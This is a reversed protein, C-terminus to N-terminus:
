GIVHRGFFKPIEIYGSNQFDLIESFRSDGSKQIEFFKWFDPFEPLVSIWSIGSVPFEAFVSYTFNHIDMHMYTHTCAHIDIEVGRDSCVHNDWQVSIAAM